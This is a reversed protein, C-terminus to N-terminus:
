PPTAPALLTFAGGPGTAAEAIPAVAASAGCAGCLLRVIAGEVGGAIAPSTIEGTIAVAAPVPLAGLDVTGAAPASLATRWAATRAGPQAPVVLEYEGGPAVALSVGGDAAVVARPTPAAAAALPGRPVAYVTAGALAPPVAARVEVPPGVVLEGPAPEGARLDVALIAATAAGGAADAPAVVAVQYLAAPLDVPGVSGAADAVTVVRAVGAATLPEGGAPTVTGANAIAAATWVATAGALPATGDPGVLALTERRVAAGAYRIALPAAPSAVLGASDPLELVPLGADAPVVTVATAGGAHVRLSFAGAADTVAVTSPVGGVTLSVRAGAVPSGDARTVTGTITDAAPVSRDGGIAVADVDRLAVPAVDAATPVVLLDYRMPQITMSFAGDVGAFAEVPALPASASPVARVYAALPEGAPGFLHGAAVLGPDVVRPGIYYDAGAAVTVNQVQPPIGQDPRPIVVLRYSATAAGPDVVNFRALAGDCALAGVRGDLEARYTGAAAAVFQVRSGAADQPTVAVPAGGRTVRWEYEAVGTGGFASITGTLEVVQGTQPSTPSVSLVMQCYAPSADGTGTGADTAGGGDPPGSALDGACAALAAAVLAAALRAISRGTM